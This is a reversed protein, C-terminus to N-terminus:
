AEGALRPFEPLENEGVGALDLAIRWMEDAAGESVREFGHALVSRNRASLVSERRHLGAEQFQAGLRDQLAALLAYADQLGLRVHGHEARAELRSRLEEPVREIPVRETSDIGHAEALRVQAVAEIARYLRAVADDSRGERKRRRANALLDLVHRRGPRPSALLQDLHRALHAIEDLVHSGRQAGLAARLDNAGKEVVKLHERATGHDFREWTDLARALHELVNLERKRDERSVRRKAEDAVRAAAAFAGQDFLVIFDEVAQYGLADWPNVSHVVKETGSVVVGVGGKNRATGAVYSVLCPWRRAHLALAASMCKTGGTFDVVVRFGEGRSIWQDVDATLARLRDVCAPFDEADPLEFLDYRGPDLDLGEATAKPVIKTEIESKTEPSHVFRIRAPRWHKITAVIPEPSGGVTCILLVSAGGQM